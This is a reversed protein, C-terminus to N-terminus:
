KSFPSLDQFLKKTQFLVARVYASFEHGTEGGEHSHGVDQHDVGVHKGIGKAVAGIGEAHGVARDIDGRRNGGHQARRQRADQGIQGQRLGAAHAEVREEEDRHEEAGNGLQDGAARRSRRQDVDAKQHHRGDAVDVPVIEPDTNRREQRKRDHGEGVFM